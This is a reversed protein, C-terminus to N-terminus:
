NKNERFELVPTNTFTATGDAEEIGKQKKVEEEMQKVDPSYVWVKRNKINFTGLNTPVKEVKAALIDDLVLPKLESIEAEIANSQIKLEAYRKLNEKNM